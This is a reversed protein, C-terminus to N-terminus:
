KKAPAKAPLSTIAAATQGIPTDGMLDHVIGIGILVVLMSVLGM